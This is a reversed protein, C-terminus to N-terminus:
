RDPRLNRRETLDTVVARPVHGRYDEVCTKSCFVRGDYRHIGAANPAGCRDCWLLDEFGNTNM